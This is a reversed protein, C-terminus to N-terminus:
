VVSHRPLIPAFAPDASIVFGYQPKDTYYGM